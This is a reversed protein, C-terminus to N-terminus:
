DRVTSYNTTDMPQNPTPLNYQKLLADIKEAEHYPADYPRLMNYRVIGAPDIIAVHPIGRVGFDPNFVDEKSFVVDWTMGLTKMFEPMMAMEEAAKDKLKISKKNVRDMHRGQISTVGIIEVAYDKYREKLKVVNPFSGVCPTCWTTWFDLVVVKGKLDSLKKIAPNSSHWEVNIEPATNGILAQRAFNGELFKVILELHKDPTTSNQLVNKTITVIKTRVKEITTADTKALPNSTEDFLQYVRSATRESMKYELLPLFDYILKSDAIAEINLFQLRTFVVDARQDNSLLLEKIAPHKLLKKYDNAWKLSNQYGKNVIAGPYYLVRVAAAKAGDVTKNLAIKSLTPYVVQRLNNLNYLLENKTFLEVDNLTFAKFENNKKAVEVYTNMKEWRLKSDDTHLKNLELLENYIKLATTSQANVTTIITSWILFLIIKKM